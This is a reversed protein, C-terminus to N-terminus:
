VKKNSLFFLFLYILCELCFSFLLGLFLGFFFPFFFVIFVFIFLNSFSFAPILLYMWSSIGVCFQRLDLYKLSPSPTSFHLCSEFDIWAFVTTNLFMLIWFKGVVFVDSLLPFLAPLLPKGYVYNMIWLMLLWFIYLVRVFWNPFYLWCFLPCCIHVTLDCFLFYFIALLYM